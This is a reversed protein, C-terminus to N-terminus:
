YEIISGEPMIEISSAILALIGVGIAIFIVTGM